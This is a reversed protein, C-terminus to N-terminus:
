ALPPPANLQSFTSSRQPPLQGHGEGATDGDLLQWVTCVSQTMGGGGGVVGQGCQWHQPLQRQSCMSAAAQPM